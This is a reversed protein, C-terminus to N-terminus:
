VQQKSLTHFRTNIMVLVMTYKWYVDRACIWRTWNTPWCSTRAMLACQCHSTRTPPPESLSLRKQKKTSILQCFSFTYRESIKWQRWAINSWQVFAQSLFMQHFIDSFERKYIQYFRFSAYIVMKHKCLLRFLRNKIESVLPSNEWMASPCNVCKFLAGLSAPIVHNAEPSTIPQAYSIGPFDSCHEDCKMVVGQPTLVSFKKEASKQSFDKTFQSYKSKDAVTQKVFARAVQLKVNPLLYKIM